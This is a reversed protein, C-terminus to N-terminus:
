EERKITHQGRPRHTKWAPENTYVSGLFDLGKPSEPQLSHHLLMTDHEYNLVPIGYVFWLYQIDYLGNQGVKKGPSACFKEVWRWAKLESELTPWYSGTPNRYDWFPIVLCRDISPAFGICTIQGAATEIDFAGQASPLWHDHYFREIDELTPDLWFERVPKRL